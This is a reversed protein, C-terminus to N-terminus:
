RWSSGRSGSTCAVPSSTFGRWSCRCARALLQEVAADGGAGVTFGDGAELNAAIAAYANADYVPARGDWAEDVRLGLGLLLVAVLAALGIGAATDRRWDTKWRGSEVLLSRDRAGGSRKFSGGEHSDEDEPAVAVETPRGREAERGAAM